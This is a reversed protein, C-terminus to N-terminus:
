AIAIDAVRVLFENPMLTTPHIASQLRQGRHHVEHFLPPPAVPPWWKLKQDAPFLSQQAIEFASQRPPQSPSFKTRRNSKFITAIPIHHKFPQRARLSVTGRVQPSREGSNRNQAMTTIGLALSDPNPQTAEPCSSTVGILCTARLDGRM